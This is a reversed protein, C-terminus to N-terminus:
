GFRRHGFPQSGQVSATSPPVTTSTTTTTTEPPSTTTTTEPATTTTTTSASPDEASGNPDGGAGPDTSGGDAPTGDTEPATTTTTPELTTTTTPPETTTTVPSKDKEKEGKDKEVKEKEEVTTVTTSPASTTVTTSAAPPATTTTTTPPAQIVPIQTAAQAIAAQVKPVAQPKEDKPVKTLDNELRRVTAQAKPVDKAKVADNLQKIHQNTDDLAPSDVPLGVTYAVVRVPRPLPVGGNAAAAASASMLVIGAAVSGARWASSGLRRLPRPGSRLPLVPAAPAGSDPAAAGQPWRAAVAAALAELEAASPTLPLDQPPALVGGLQDLLEDHIDGGEVWV